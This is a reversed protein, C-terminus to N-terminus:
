PLVPDNYQEEERPRPIEAAGHDTVVQVETHIYEHISQIISPTPEPPDLTEVRPASISLVPRQDTMATAVAAVSGVLTTGQIIAVSTPITSEEDIFQQVWTSITSLATFTSRLM